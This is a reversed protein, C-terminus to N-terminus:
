ANQSRSASRAVASKRRRLTWSNESGSTNQANQNSFISQVHLNQDIMQGSPEAGAAKVSGVKRGEPAM